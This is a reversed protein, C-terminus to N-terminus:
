NKGRASGVIYLGGFTIGFIGWLPIGYYKETLWNPLSLNSIGSSGSDGGGGSSAKVNREEYDKILEQLADYYKTFNNADATTQKYVKTQVESVQNGDKSTIKTITFEGQLDINETSTTVFFQSGSLNTANYTNGNVWSGNPAQTTSYLIGEYSNGNYSITMTGFTSVNPSNYGISSYAALVNAYSRNQPDEVGLNYVKNNRSIVENASINGSDLEPYINDVLNQVNSVVEASDSDYNSLLTSHRPAKVRLTESLGSGSPPNVYIEGKGSFQEGNYGDAASNLDAHNVTTGNVLTISTNAYINNWSESRGQYQNYPTVYEDNIGDSRAREIISRISNVTGNVYRIQNLQKVSYYRQVAEVAKTKAVSKSSGNEYAEAIAVEAKMQATVKSPNRGNEQTTMHADYSGEVSAFSNYIAQKTVNEGNDTTTSTCDNYTAGAGALGFAYVSTVMDVASCGSSLDIFSTNTQGYATTSAGTILLVAFTVGM